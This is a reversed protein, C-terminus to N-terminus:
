KIYNISVTPNKRPYLSEYKETIELNLYQLCKKFVEYEILYQDSYGHTADYACALTNGRNNKTIEPDLTHLEIIILGFKRIYPKWLKMHYIFNNILKNSSILNGKYCFSGSSYINHNISINPEQFIRNHDLFTRSNIFDELKYNYKNILTENIGKPNSINGSLVISNVNSLTKRSAERAKKNFDLGILILPYTDIHKGRITRTTIIDYLHKLFTGDGCGVDIIGKPQKDIRQNFVKTIINDVKKFYTKHSGGSGWVNMKRNVHIEHNNNTREWIFDPKTTLMKSLNNFTNLYSVTVGYSSAKTFFYLGKDTIEHNKNLYNIKKFLEIISKNFQKYPNNIKIKNDITHLHKCFSINALIPGIIIGEFFNYYNSHLEKRLKTLNFNEINTIYNKLEIESLKNYNIHYSLIKDLLEIKEIYNLIELFNNNIHYINKLENKKCEFDLFNLSRLIRLSVNFYGSSISKKKLLDEISFIKKQIILNLIGSKNLALITPICVIGDLHQFLIKRYKNMLLKM